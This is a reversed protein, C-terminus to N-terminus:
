VTDSVRERCSARGIEGIHLPGNQVAIDGRVERGDEVDVRSSARLGTATNWRSEVQRQVDRPLNQRGGASTDRQAGALGPTALALVLLTRRM